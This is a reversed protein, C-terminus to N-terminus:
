LGQVTFHIAGLGKNLNVMQRHLSHLVHTRSAVTHLVHLMDIQSIGFVTM